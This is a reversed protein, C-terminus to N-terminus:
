SQMQSQSSQDDAEAKDRIANYIEDRAKAIKTAAELLRPDTGSLTIQGIVEKLFVLTELSLM